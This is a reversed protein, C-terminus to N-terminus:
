QLWGGGLNDDNSTCVPVPPSLDFIKKPWGRYVPLVALSDAAKPDCGKGFAPDGTRQVVIRVRVSDGTRLFDNGVRLDAPVASAALSSSGSMAEISVYTAPM